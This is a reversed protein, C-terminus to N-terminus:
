SPRGISFYKFGLKRMPAPDYINRGDFIIPKKLAEKVKALDIQRFEDWETCVVLADADRCAAIADDQFKTAPLLKRFNEQAVPDFAVVKAGLNILNEVITIAPADRIDDTKPKFALGWIAIKKGKLDRLTKKINLIFKQRQEKNVAEVEELVSFHSKNEQAIKILAQVDKPFCSGGYGLGASLFARPGIRGDLKMGRSVDEVNAGVKECINAVSNIFSIQTALYSNSAYKIMEATELDTVLIPAGLVEYLKAVKRAAKSHTDGLVIRDPHMFDELASGERLFEPNSVVDFNGKYYQKITKKVLQGTGIPVTSKNVIIRANPTLHQTNPTPTNKSRDHVAFSSLCQGIEKAAALVYKLDASGDETPPTGVAIFIIEAGAIADKLRTTFKIRKAKINKTILEEIGPEYIPSLGKKLNDVKTKDIDVCTVDNGLEALCVGQVLGVYGTGIVIVKM